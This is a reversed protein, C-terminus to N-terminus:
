QTLIRYRDLLDSWAVDHEDPLADIVAQRALEVSVMPLIRKCPMICHLPMCLDSYGLGLYVGFVSPDVSGTVGMRTLLANQAYQNQQICQSACQKDLMSIPPLDVWLSNTDDFQEILDDGPQWTCGSLLSRSLCIGFRQESDRASSAEIMRYASQRVSQASYVATVTLEESLRMIGELAPGDLSAPMKLTVARGGCYGILKEVWCKDSLCQIAWSGDLYVGDAGADQSVSLDSDSNLHAFLRVVHGDLSSQTDTGQELRYRNRSRYQMIQQFKSIVELTPNSIVLGRYGEVILLDGDQISMTAEEIDAVIPISPHGMTVEDGGYDAVIAQIATNFPLLREAMSADKTVLVYGLEPDLAHSSASEQAALELLQRADDVLRAVGVVVGGSRSTGMRIWM